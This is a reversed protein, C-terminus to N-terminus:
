VYEHGGTISKRISKTTHILYIKKLKKIFLILDHKINGGLIM